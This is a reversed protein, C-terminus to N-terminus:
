LVVQGVLGEVSATPALQVTETVNVGVAPPDLVAFTVTVSSAAVLGCVTANLPAPWAGATVSVGPLRVNAERIVPVVLAACVDVTRFEPEAGNVIELTATVPVL